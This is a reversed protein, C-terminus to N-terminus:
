ANSLTPGQFHLLTMTTILSVAALAAEVHVFGYWENVNKLHTGFDMFTGMTQCIRKKMKDEPISATQGM